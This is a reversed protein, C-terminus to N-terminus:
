LVKLQIKKWRPLFYFIKAQTIFISFSIGRYKVVHKGERVVSARTSGLDLGHSIQPPCLPMPVPKEGLQRNEGTLKM